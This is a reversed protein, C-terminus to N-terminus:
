IEEKIFKVLAESFEEANVMNCGISEKYIVQKFVVQETSSSEEIKEM